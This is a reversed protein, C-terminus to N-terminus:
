AGISLIRARKARFRCLKCKHGTRLLGIWGHIEQKLGCRFHSAEDALTLERRDFEQIRMKRSDLLEVRLEVRNNIDSCILSAFLSLARFRERRSSLKKPRKVANRDGDLRRDFNCAHQAFRARRQVFAIAWLSISYKDSPQLVCTCDNEARCVTGLEQHGIFSVVRQM